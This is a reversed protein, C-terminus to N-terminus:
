IGLFKLEEQGLGPWSGGLLFPEGFGKFQLSKMRTKMKLRVQDKSAQSIELSWSKLDEFLEKGVERYTQIIRILTDFGAELTINDNFVEIEQLNKLISSFNKKLFENM